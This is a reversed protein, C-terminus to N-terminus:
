LSRRFGRRYWRLWTGLRIETLSVGGNVVEIAIYTAKIVLPLDAICRSLYSAALLM